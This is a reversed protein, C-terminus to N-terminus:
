RNYIKCIEKEKLHNFKIKNYTDVAYKIHYIVCYKQKNEFNASSIKNNIIM